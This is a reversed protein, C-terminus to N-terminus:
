GTKKVPLKRSLIDVANDILYGELKMELDTVDKKATMKKCSVCEIEYHYSQAKVDYNEIMTINLPYLKGKEEVDLDLSFHRIRYTEERNVLKVTM